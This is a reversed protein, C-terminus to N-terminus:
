QMEKLEPESANSDLSSRDTAVNEQLSDTAEVTSLETISASKKQLSKKKLVSKKRRKKKGGKNEAAQEEKVPAIVDRKAGSLEVKPPTNESKSNEMDLSDMKFITDSYDDKNSIDESSIKTNSPLSLTLDETSTETLGINGLAIQKELFDRGRVKASAHRESDATNRRKSFDSVQNECVLQNEGLDISRRRRSQSIYLNEFESVPIPSTALHEPVEETESGEIEEVFFAEGSEGLKMHIDQPEGNIEIDVVKEKSRLVGLKGFRVHFPSCKYSGDPQEVVIVDIAGTLTAANIDNYFDKFNSLFRGIYNMGHM